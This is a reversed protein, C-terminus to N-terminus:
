FVFPIFLWFPFFEAFLFLTIFFLFLTTLTLWGVKTGFRRFSISLASILVVLYGTILFPLSWMQGETWVTSQLMRVTWQIWAFLVTGVLGIWVAPLLPHVPKGTRKARIWFLTWVLLVIVALVFSVSLWFTRLQTALPLPVTETPARWGAERVPVDFTQYEYPLIGASLPFSTASQVTNVTEMGVVPESPDVSALSSDLEASALLLDQLIKTRDILLKSRTLFRGAADYSAVAPTNLVDLDNASLRQSYALLSGPVFLPRDSIAFLTMPMIGEEQQNATHRMPLYPLQSDFSIEIPRLTSASVATADGIRNSAAANVKLAVFHFGPQQVYYTFNAKDQDNFSYGNTNLWATLDSADTATLITTDFDGVERQEVVQVTKYEETAPEIAGPLFDAGIEQRKPETLNTLESFIEEPAEKLTPKSPTPVILGFDTISGTFTPQFVLQERQKTESFVLLVGQGHSFTFETGAPVFPAMGCAAAISPLLVASALAVVSVFRIPHM